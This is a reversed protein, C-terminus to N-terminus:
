GSYYSWGEVHVTQPSGNAGVEVSAWLRPNAGSCAPPSTTICASLVAKRADLPVLYLSGDQAGLYICIGASCAGIQPSSGFTSMQGYSEVQVLGQGNQLEHVYGDDTAVYWNGAGDTGPSTNIPSGTSYTAVLTGASNFLYLVGNQAGVGFLNGCATCWYPSASIGAPVSRTILTIGGNVNLQAVAVGGGSFTMAITAPLTSASAAIGTVDLWPLPVSSPPSVNFNSNNNNGGNSSSFSYSVLRSSVSDSVVTYVVDTTHNCSACRLAVPGAVVQRSGSINNVSAAADCDGGSVDSLGLATGQTYYIFGAFAASAGAMAAGSGGPAITCQRNRSSTSDRWVDICNGVQQCVAGAMPYVDVLRGGNTPDPIVLPSGTLTGNLVQTWRPNTSGFRYDYVSGSSDGVVYENFGNAQVHVGDLSFHGSSSGVSTFKQDERIAPWCSLYTASARLNNLTTTPLAPCPANLQAAQLQHLSLEIASNDTAQNAVRNLMTHSLLFNTSLETMLAGAIIAIFATMILVGSLVSGRQSRRRDRLLALVATM